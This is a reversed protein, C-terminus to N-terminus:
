PEDEGRRVDELTIVRANRQPRFTPFSSTKDARRLHVEMGKRALDSIVQGISLERSTAMSKAVRFVEDDLNLTTRM